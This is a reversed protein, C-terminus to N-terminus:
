VKEDIEKPALYERIKMLESLQKYITQFDPREDPNELWCSQMINWLDDSPPVKTPKQLRLGGLVQTVVDKPSVIQYYPVAVELIEYMTIGTMSQILLSVSFSNVLLGFM